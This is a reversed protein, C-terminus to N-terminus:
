SINSFFYYHIEKPHPLSIRFYSKINNFPTFRSTIARLLNHPHPHLSKIWKEYMYLLLFCFLSQIVYNVMYTCDTEYFRVSIRNIVASSKPLTKIFHASYVFYLTCLFYLDPKGHNKKIFHQNGYFYPNNDVRGQTYFYWRYESM